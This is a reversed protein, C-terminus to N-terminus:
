SPKWNIYEDMENGFDSKSYVALDNNVAGVKRKVAPYDKLLLKLPM